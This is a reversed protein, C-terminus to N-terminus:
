GEQVPQEQVPPAEGEQMPQEQAPPAEGEQMPQEQVPPAEGEQVPVPHLSEMQEQTYYYCIVPFGETMYDYIKSAMNIPLNICGHSGNELYIDGGFSKRWTADHMGYKGYYPMWYKVPTEYDSGRLVANRTKYAIGFVGPPTICNSASMKGSVFDTELVIEGDIYLYLYQHSLDAEVYSDGIDDEGKQRARYSYIPERAGSQGQYILQVLAEAEAKRDTQWGYYGSPLSLGIGLTTIFKRKKGYTDWQRAQDKVFAAVAEEDLVPGDEEMTIWDKMISANLEVRNGNWDYVIETGLWRNALEVKEVLSPDERTLAAEKYCGAEELDITEQQTLLADEICQIAQETDLQTGVGETIIEYGRAKESYEGIYADQPKQMNRKQFAEWNGIVEELLREDYTVGQVVSHFYARDALVRIWLMTEQQALLHDVVGLSDKYSLGIDSPVITGLVTGTKGTFPDRGRVELAYEEIQADLLAAVPIAEMNSCVISNITTNPLFHTRYYIAIGGYIGLVSVLLLGAAGAVWWIWKRKAAQETSASPEQGTEKSEIEPETKREMCEIRKPEEEKYTNEPSEGDSYNSRGKKVQRRDMATRNGM